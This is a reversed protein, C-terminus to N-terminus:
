NGCKKLVKLTMWPTNQECLPLVPFLEHPKGRSGKFDVDYTAHLGWQVSAFSVLREAWLPLGRCVMKLVNHFEVHWTNDCFPVYTLLLECVM